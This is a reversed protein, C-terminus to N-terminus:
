LATASGTSPLLNWGHIRQRRQEFLCVAAAAGVNLSEVGPTMPITVWHQALARLAASLGEGEAGFLWAVDGRLDLGFVDRARAGVGTAVIAGNYNALLTAVECQERIELVFHAGMAARLVKPAWAQACGPTLLVADIGAAAATRLITGVNGPDQVADLIVLSGRLQDPPRTIPLEIVALVGSPTDVPSLQGFLRDRLVVQPLAPVARVLQTIEARAQASESLVIEVLPWQAELAARLLHPGDILTLGTDRRERASAALKKLRKVRPNTESSLILRDGADAM